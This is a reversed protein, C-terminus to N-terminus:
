TRSTTMRSSCDTPGRREFAFEYSLTEKEGVDLFVEERGLIELWNILRGRYRGHWTGVNTVTVEVTVPEDVRPSEPTVTVREMGDVGGKWSPHDAVLSFRPTAFGTPEPDPVVISEPVGDATPGVTGTPMGNYDWDVSTSVSLAGESAGSALTVVVDLTESGPNPVSVDTLDVATPSASVSASGVDSGDHRITVTDVADPGVGGFSVSVGTLSYNSDDPVFTASQVTATDGPSLDGADVNGDNLELAHSARM